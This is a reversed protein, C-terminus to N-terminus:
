AATAHLNQVTFDDGLTDRQSVQGKSISVTWGLREARLIAAEVAPKPHRPRPM